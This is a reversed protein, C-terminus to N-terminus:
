LKDAARELQEIHNQQRWLECLLADSTRECALLGDVRCSVYTGGVGVCGESFCLTKGNSGKHANILNGALTAEATNGSTKDAHFLKMYRTAEKKAADRDVPIPKLLYDKKLGGFYFVGYLSKLWDRRFKARDAAFALRHLCNDGWKVKEDLLGALIKDLNHRLAAALDVIEKKRGKRTKTKKYRNKAAQANARTKAKINPRDLICREDKCKAAHTAHATWSAAVYGCASRSFGLATVWADTPMCQPHAARRKNVHALLQYRHSQFGCACAAQDWSQLPM